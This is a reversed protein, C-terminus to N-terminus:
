PMSAARGANCNCCKAATHAVQLNGDHVEFRLEQFLTSSECELRVALDDLDHIDARASSAVGLTLLGAIAFMSTRFFTTM